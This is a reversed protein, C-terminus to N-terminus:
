ERYKSHCSKCGSSIRKLAPRLDEINEISNALVISTEALELSLKTFEDFEDWIAPKAESKPDTANVTFVKPTKLSLSSLRELASKAENADFQTKRKLMQGIVKTNDAMAKMVMMREKVNQDKVGSHAFAVSSIVLFILTLLKIVKM